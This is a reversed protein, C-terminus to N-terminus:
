SLASLILTNSTSNTLSTILVASLGVIFAAPPAVEEVGIFWLINLWRWGDGDLEISSSDRM